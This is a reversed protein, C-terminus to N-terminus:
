NKTNKNLANGRKKKEIKNNEWFDVTASAQSEGEGRV